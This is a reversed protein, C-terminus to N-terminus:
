SPVRSGVAVSEPDHGAVVEHLLGTTYAPSLTTPHMRVTTPHM